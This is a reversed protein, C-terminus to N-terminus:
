YNGYLSLELQVLRKALAYRQRMPAGTCYECLSAHCDGSDLAMNSDDAMLRDILRNLTMTPVTAHAPIPVHIVRYGTPITYYSTTTPTPPRSHSAHQSTPPPSVKSVHQASSATPMRPGTAANTPPSPRSRKTPSPSDTLDICDDDAHM